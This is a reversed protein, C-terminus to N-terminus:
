KKGNRYETPSIGTNKKFVYSFYHGQCYGVQNGIDFTKYDTNRLLKKAQKIRTATLYTTFNQGTEKRFLASFYNTSIHLIDCLKEANLDEDSYNQQIHDKAKEILDNKNHNRTQSLEESIKICMEVLWNNIKEKTKLRNIELLFNDKKDWVLDLDLKMSTVFNLIISLIDIIYLQYDKLYMKKGDIRGTLGGITKKIDEPSGLKIAMVLAREDVEDIKLKQTESPEIDELYIIKNNGLMITYDLASLAAGYSKYLMSRDYCASGVGITITVNLYKEVATRIQELGLLIRNSTKPAEKEGLSILLVIENIRMFIAGLNNEEVIEQCINFIAVNLLAKNKVLSIEADKKLLDDPRIVAVALQSTLSQMEFAEINDKIIELEVYDEIWHNLFREKLLPLSEKYSQELIQINNKSDMEEDLSNKIERLLESMEKANIPKLIYRLVGLEIATQAYEFEDFGSIIVVKTAPFRYKINEALKIGDMFPMRIDTIVMDPSTKDIIDLAEIGNEAEGVVDFGLEDWKIKKIMGKRIEEEDDVIIIKYKNM